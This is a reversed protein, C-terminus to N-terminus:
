KETMGLYISSNPIRAEKKFILVKRLTQICHSYEAFHREDCINCTFHIWRGYSDQMDEVSIEGGACDSHSLTINGKAILKLPNFQQKEHFKTKTHVNLKM